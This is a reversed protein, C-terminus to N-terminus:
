VMARSLSSFGARRVRKGNVRCERPTGHPWTGWSAQMSCVKVDVEM